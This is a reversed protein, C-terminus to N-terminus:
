FQPHISLICFGRAICKVVYNNLSFEDFKFQLLQIFIKKILVNPLGMSSLLYSAYASQNDNNLPYVNDVFIDEDGKILEGNPTSYLQRYQSNDLLQDNSLIKEM